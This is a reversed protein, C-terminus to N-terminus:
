TAYWYVHGAYNHPLLYLKAFHNAQDHSVGPKSARNVLWLHLSRSTKKTARTASVRGPGEARSSIRSEATALHTTLSSYCRQHCLRASGGITPGLCRGARDLPPGAWDTPRRGQHRLTETSSHVGKKVSNCYSSKRRPYSHVRYHFLKLLKKNKLSRSAWLLPDTM